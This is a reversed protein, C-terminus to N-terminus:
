PIFSDIMNRSIIDKLLDNEKFNISYNDEDMDMTILESNIIMDTDMMLDFACTGGKITRGCMIRSSVSNVSDVENYIAAQMLIDVTKEFSAQSLPDSDLKVLGHRDISILIGTHTMLDVLLSLHHYNVDNGSSIFVTTLEKILCNRAAEIGFIKYMTHISNCYTRNLDIGKINRIDIMNIGETNLVYENTTNVSGDDRFKIIQREIPNYVNNINNIGKIIFSNLIINKFDDIYEFNYVKMNFRIHIILNDSNNNNTMIGCNVINSITDKMNRKVLKLNM